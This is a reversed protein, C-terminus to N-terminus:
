FFVLQWRDDGNGAPRKSAVLMYDCRVVHWGSFHGTMNALVYMSNQKTVADRGSIACPFNGAGRSFNGARNNCPILACM